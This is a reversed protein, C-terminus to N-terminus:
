CSINKEESIKELELFSDKLEKISYDRPVSVPYPDMGAEKLLGAVFTDHPVKGCFDSHSHYCSCSKELLNIVVSTIGSKHKTAFASQIIKKRM